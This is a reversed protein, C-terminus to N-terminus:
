LLHFIIFLAISSAYQVQSWFLQLTNSTLWYFAWHISESPINDTILTCISLWLWIFSIALMYSTLYITSSSRTTNKQKYKEYLLAIIYYSIIYFFVFILISLISNRVFSYYASETSMIKSLGKKKSSKKKM